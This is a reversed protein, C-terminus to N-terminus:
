PVVTIRDDVRSVGPAAWAVREAEQREAFSRVHGSLIVTDDMATVHVRRADIEASRKFAAEIKAQVDGAYVQPKLTIGNTVGKVGTLDRVARAAAERQYQWDLTGKLTVWGDSVAATVRNPPIVTNWTLATVVAQAIDTDNREYGTVLRVTLDNAVAKVGYVRLAVREAAAKTAYSGVDGRLTVVGADVSVGIESADVSPEWDLAHEVHQKLERDTMALRWLFM